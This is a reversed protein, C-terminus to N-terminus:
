VPEQSAGNGVLGRCARITTWRRVPVQDVDGGWPRDAGLANVSGMWEAWLGRLAPLTADPGPWEVSTIEPIDHERTHALLTSLWWIPHWMTWALSPTPLGPYEEALEGFWAGGRRHVTWSNPDLRWLCDKLRVGDLSEAACEFMIQVQRDLM